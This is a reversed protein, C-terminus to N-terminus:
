PIHLKYMLALCCLQSLYSYQQKSREHYLYLRSQGPLKTSPNSFTKNRWGACWLHMQYNVCLISDIYNCQSLFIHKIALLDDWCFDIKVTKDLVDMDKM